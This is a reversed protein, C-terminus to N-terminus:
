PPPTRPDDDGADVDTDDSDEAEASSAAPSKGDPTAADPAAGDPTAAAAVKAEAAVERLIADVRLAEDLVHDIEFTLTPTNRTRLRNGVARQLFPGASQLGRRIRVLAPQPTGYVTFAVTAERLDGTVRVHTITILGADRVRPDKIEGRALVEGLVAQIERSLRETRQKV